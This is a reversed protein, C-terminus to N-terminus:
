KNRKLAADLGAIYGHIWLARLIGNIDLTNSVGGQQAWTYQGIWKDAAKEARQYDATRDIPDEKM